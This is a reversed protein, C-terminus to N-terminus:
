EPRTEARANRHKIAQDYIAVLSRAGDHSFNSEYVSRARAGGDDVAEDEDILSLVREWESQQQVDFTWDSHVQEVYDRVLAVDSLAVPIGCAMAEVVVLPFAEEGITPLILARSQRMRATVEDIEVRGIFTVDPFADALNGAIPGDGIVVLQQSRPRSTFIRCLAEVGKAENIRGVYLVTDSQSPPAIRGGPDSIRHPRVVIRDEPFGWSSFLGHAQPTLAVFRDIHKSWTGSRDAVAGTAAAIISLPVSDRYCRHRVASLRSSAVCDRCTVGDRIMEGNVCLWRFNHLTHVIPVGMKSATVISAPSLRFWTNHVHIVDPKEAKIIREVKRAELPNWPALALAGLTQVAGTQNTVGYLVVDHGAAELDARDRDLVVNEGGDVRYENHLQLIKMTM